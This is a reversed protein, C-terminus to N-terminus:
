VDLRILDYRAPRSIGAPGCWKLSILARPLFLYKSMALIHLTWHHRARM